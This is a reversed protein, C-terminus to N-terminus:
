IKEGETRDSRNPQSVQRPLAVGGVLKGRYVPTAEGTVEVTWSAGHPEAEKVVVVRASEGKVIAFECSYWDDQRAWEAAADCADLGTCKRADELGYGERRVLWRM